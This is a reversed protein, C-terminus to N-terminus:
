PHEKDIRDFAEQGLSDRIPWSQKSIQIKKISEVALAARIHLAPLDGINDITLDFDDETLTNDSEHENIELGPRKVYVLTGGLRKIMAAENEFRIGTITAPTGADRLAEISAAAKDVWIDMGLQKRGVDTGFTQLWERVEKIRKAGTYGIVQEIDNYKAFFKGVTGFEGPVPIHPTGGEILAYFERYEDESNHSNVLIWPNMTVIAKHLPYSMFVKEFEYDSVLYDAVADKGAGYGNGGIGILLPREPAPLVADLASLLLKPTLKVGGEPFASERLAEAASQDKSQGRTRGGLIRDVEAQAKRAREAMGLVTARALDTNAKNREEESMEPKPYESPNEFFEAGPTV